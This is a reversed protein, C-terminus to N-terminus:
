MMRPISKCAFSALPLDSGYMSISNPLTLISLRSSFIGFLVSGTKPLYTPSHLNDPRDFAERLINSILVVRGNAFSKIMRTLSQSKRVESSRIPWVVISRSFRKRLLYRAVHPRGKCYLRYSRLTEGIKEIPFSRKEEEDFSRTRVLPTITNTRPLNEVINAFPVIKRMRLQELISRNLEFIRDEMEFVETLHRRTMSFIRTTENLVLSVSSWDHQRLRLVDLKTCEEYVEDRDQVCRFEDTTWRGGVSSRVLGAPATRRCRGSTELFVRATNWCWESFVEVTHSADRKDLSLFGNTKLYTRRHMMQFVLSTIRCSVDIVPSCIDSM